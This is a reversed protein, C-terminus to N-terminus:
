RCSASWLLEAIRGAWKQLSYHQEVRQRGATGMRRRLDPDALLLRVAERWEEPTGYYTSPKWFEIIWREGNIPYRPVQAHRLEEGVIRGHEDHRAYEGISWMLCSNAWSVRYLPEGYPNTGGIALAVRNWEPRPTRNLERTVKITM